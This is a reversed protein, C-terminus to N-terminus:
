FKWHTYNRWSIQSNVTHHNSWKQSWHQEITINKKRGCFAQHTQLFAQIRRDNTAMWSVLILEKQDTATNWFKEENEPFLNIIFTQRATSIHAVAISTFNEIDCCNLDQQIKQRPQHGFSFKRPVYVSFWTETGWLPVFIYCLLLRDPNRQFYNAFYINEFANDEMTNGCWCIRDVHFPQSFAEM